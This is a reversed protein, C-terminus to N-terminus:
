QQGKIIVGAIIESGEGHGKAGRASKQSRQGLGHGKVRLWSRQGGTSVGVRRLLLGQGGVMVAKGWCDGRVGLVLECCYSKVRVKSRQGWGHGRVGVTVESGWQQGRVMVRGVVKVGSGWHQGWGKEVTDGSGWCDGRVGLVLECCYSKVRVKSRQGWGHGRVGVTVESGGWGGWSAFGGEQLSM